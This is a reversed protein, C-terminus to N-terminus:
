VIFKAGRQDNGSLADSVQVKPPAVIRHQLHKPSVKLGTKGFAYAATWEVRTLL